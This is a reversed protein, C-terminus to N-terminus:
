GPYGWAWMAVVLVVVCVLLVLLDARPLDARAPDDYEPDEIAALRRSLEAEYRDTNM